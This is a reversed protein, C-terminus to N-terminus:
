NLLEPHRSRYRQWASWKRTLRPGGDAYLAPLLRQSDRKSYRLTYCDHRGNRAARKIILGDIGLAADLQAKLWRIHEGSGSVFRTQLYEWVYGDRGRTDARATKNMISGDGDLLGRVFALFLPAPVAVAGITLSKRPGVGIGVLWRCLAVDGFQTRYVVGGNATQLASIKNRKGLCGLLIEVLERDASPFALHRGDTQCGDTALLGVAYALRPTWRTSAPASRRRRDTAPDLRPVYTRGRHAEANRAIRPDDKASRGKAWGKGAGAGM